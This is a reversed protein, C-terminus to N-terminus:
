SRNPTVLKGWGKATMDVEGDEMIVRGRVITNNIKCKLERGDYVIGIDKAMSLNKNHDVVTTDNIDFIVIDADAGVNLNGKQPYVNFCKAPNVCLLDIVKELTTKGRVAADIMLPLRLDIGTFGCYAKFFDDTGQLKEELTFPAHDSGIFDVTGDNVYDWLKEVNEKSRLPPNCKAFAGNKELDSEDLLLFHPCTEVYVKQGEAKAKKAMEMSEWASMHALELVCGTAKAFLILKSVTSYECINPRSKCHDLPKTHGEERLRAINNVIIDNNEAHSAMMLGTRAIQEMGRLLEYDNAMTLGRFEDERGEPASHLFSKYAIIGEKSLPYIDDLFEGGASGYFAFDIICGDKARSIRNDLIEKNYQPPSSIPHEFFTTCGGQAASLTATYFIERDTHGPDRVHVHTDIGGPIVYKGQADIIREAETFYGCESIVSIKGDKTGIDCKRFSGDIYVTGNKILLELM